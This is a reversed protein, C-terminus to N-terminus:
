KKSDDNQSQESTNPTRSLPALSKKSNPNSGKIIDKISQIGDLLQQYTPGCQEKITTAIGCPDENNIIYIAQGVAVLSLLKVWKNNRSLAELQTKIQCTKRYTLDITENTTANLNVTPREKASLSDSPHLPEAPSSSSTSTSSFRQAYTPLASTQTTASVLISAACLLQIKFYKNSLM